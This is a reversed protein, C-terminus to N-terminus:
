KSKGTEFRELKHYRRKSGRRVEVLASTKKSALFSSVASELSEEDVVPKGDFAVIVDDIGLEALASPTGSVVRDVIMGRLDDPTNRYVYFDWTIPRVTLGIEPFEKREVSSSDPPESILTAVVSIPSGGRVINLALKHGEPLRRVSNAFEPALREAEGSLPEGDVATIVDFVRLGAAEAPSGPVVLHVYVGKRGDLGLRRSLKEDVSGVLAGLWGRAEGKAPKSSRTVPKAEAISKGPYLLSYDPLDGPGGGEDSYLDFGVVGLPTGTEDFVPAGAFGEVGRVSLVCAARAGPLISSIRGEEIVFAHGEWPARRAFVFIRAGIKPAPASAFSVATLKGQPLNQLRCFAINLSRDKGLYEAPTESGDPWAVRFGSPILDRKEVHGRVIFTGNQDIFVGITFNERTLVTGDWDEYPETYKVWVVAAGFNEIAYNVGKQLDDAFLLGSVLLFPIFLASFKNM